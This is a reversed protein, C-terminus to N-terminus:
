RHNDTGWGLQRASRVEAATVLGLQPHYVMRAAAGERGKGLEEELTRLYRHVISEEQQQFQFRNANPM